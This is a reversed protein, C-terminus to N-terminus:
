REYAKLIENVEQLDFEEPDFSEGLWYLIEEYEPNEPDEIAELIHYYGGVGGCDDPPCARKGAVCVPLRQGKEVPLIKELKIEHEWGDGFDYEYTVTDKEQTMLQQIRVSKENRTGDNYDPDPMGFRTRGVIFQHLHSDTWGMSIQIAQHLRPLTMTSPVLIRRWIPPRIGKLTIKLQYVQGLERVM